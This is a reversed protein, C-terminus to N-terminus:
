NGHNGGEEDEQRKREEHLDAQLDDFTGMQIERVQDYIERALLRGIQVIDAEFPSGKKGLLDWLPEFTPIPKTGYRQQDILDNRWLVSFSQAFNEIEIDRKTLYNPTLCFSNALVKGIEKIAAKSGRPLCIKRAM